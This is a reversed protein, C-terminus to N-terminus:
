CEDDGEKCGAIYKWYVFVFNKLEDETAGRKMAIDRLKYFMTDVSQEKSQEDKMAIAAIRVVCIVTFCIIICLWVNETM